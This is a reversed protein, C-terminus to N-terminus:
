LVPFLLFPVFYLLRHSWMKPLYWLYFIAGMVIYLTLSTLLLLWVYKRKLQHHHKLSIELKDIDQVFNFMWMLVSFFLITYITLFHVGSMWLVAFFLNSLNSFFRALDDTGCVQTVQLVNPKWSYKKQFIDSTIWSFNLRYYHCILCTLRLDLAIHGHYNM